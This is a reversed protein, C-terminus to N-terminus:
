SRAGEPQEVPVDMVADADVALVGDFADGVGDELELGVDDRELLELDVVLARLADVLRPADGLQQVHVIVGMRWPEGPPRAEAVRDEGPVRHALHAGRMERGEAEKLFAARDPHRHLEVAVRNLDDVRVEPQHAELAEHLGPREAAVVPEIVRLATFVGPDDAAVEIGRRHGADVLQQVRGQLVGHLQGAIRPYPGPGAHEGDHAVVMNEDAVADTGAPGFDGLGRARPDRRVVQGNQHVELDAAPGFFTRLRKSVLPNFYRGWRPKKTVRPAPQSTTVM